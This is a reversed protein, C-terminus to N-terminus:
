AAEEVLARVDSVLVRGDEGTGEVTALDIDHEAALERAADTADIEAVRERVDLMPHNRAEDHAGDPVPAWAGRTYTKGGFATVPWEPGDQKVRAEM